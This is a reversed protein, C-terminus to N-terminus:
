NESDKSSSNKLYVDGPKWFNFDKMLQTVRCLCLHSPSGNMWQEHINLVIQGYLLEVVSMLLARTMETWVTTHFKAFLCSIPTSSSKIFM